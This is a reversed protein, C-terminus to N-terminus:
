IMLVIDTKVSRSRHSGIKAWPFVDALVTVLPSTHSSVDAVGDIGMAASDEIVVAFVIPIPFVLFSFWGGPIPWM